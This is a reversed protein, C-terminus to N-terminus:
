PLARPGRRRRATSADRLHREAPQHDAGRLARLRDGGRARRAGGRGHPPGIPEERADPPDPGRARQARGGRRPSPARAGRPAGAPVDGLRRSRRVPAQRHAGPVPCVRARVRGSSREPWSARPDTRARALEGGGLAREAALRRRRDARATRPDRRGADGRDSRRAAARAGARRRSRAACRARAPALAGPAGPDRDAACRHGHAWARAGGRPDSRQPRHRGRVGLSRRARGVSRGARACPEPPRLPGLLHSPLPRLGGLLPGLARAAVGVVLRPRRRSSLSRAGREAERLPRDLLLRRRGRRTGNAGDMTCAVLARPCAAGM